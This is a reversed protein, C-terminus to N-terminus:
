LIVSWLISKEFQFIKTNQLVLQISSIYNIESRVLFTSLVIVFMRSPLTRNRGSIGLESSCLLWICDVDDNEIAFLLITFEGGAAEEPENFVAALLKELDAWSLLLDNWSLFSCSIALARRLYISFCLKSMGNYNKLKLTLAM